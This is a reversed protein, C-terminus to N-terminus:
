LMTHPHKDLLKQLNEFFTKYDELEGQLTTIIENLEEIQNDKMLTYEYGQQVLKKLNNYENKSVVMLDHASLPKHPM